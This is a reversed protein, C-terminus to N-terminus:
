LYYCCWDVTDGADDIWHPTFEFRANTIGSPVLFSVTVSTSDGPAVIGPVSLDLSGLGPRVSPLYTHGGALLHFDKPEYAQAAHHSPNVIHVTDLTVYVHDADKADSTGIDSTAVGLPIAVRVSPTQALAPLTVALVLLTSRLVFHM